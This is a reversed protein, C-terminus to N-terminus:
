TRSLVAFEIEIVDHGTWRRCRHWRKKLERDSGCGQMMVEWRMEGCARVARLTGMGRGGEKEDEGGSVGVEYRREAM